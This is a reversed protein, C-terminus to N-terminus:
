RTSRSPAATAFGPRCAWLNTDMPQMWDLTRGTVVVDDGGILTVRSCALAVSSTVLCAAAAAIVASKISM